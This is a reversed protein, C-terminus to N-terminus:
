GAKKNVKKTPSTLNIVTIYSVDTAFILFRNGFIIALNKHRWLILAKKKNYHLLNNHKLYVENIKNGTNIAKGLKNHIAKFHCPQLQFIFNSKYFIHKKKRLINQKVILFNYRKIRTNGILYLTDRIAIRQEYRLTMKSKFIEM